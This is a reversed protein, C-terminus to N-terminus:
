HIAHMGKPKKKTVQRNAPHKKIKHKKTPRTTSSPKKARVEISLRKQDPEGSSASRDSLKWSYEYVRISKLKTSTAGAVHAQRNFALLYERAAVPIKDPRIQGAEDWANVTCELWTGALPIERAEGSAPVGMVRMQHLTRSTQLASYMPYPSFPWHEKSTVVDRAHGVVLVALLMLVVCKRARSM